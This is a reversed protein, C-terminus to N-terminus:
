RKLSCHPLSGTVVAIAYPATNLSARDCMGNLPPYMQLAEQGIAKNVLAVVSNEGLTVFARASVLSNQVYKDKWQIKCHYKVTEIFLAGRCSDTSKKEKKRREHNIQAM